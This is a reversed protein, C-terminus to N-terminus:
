STEQSFLPTSFERTFAQNIYTAIAKTYNEREELNMKALRQPNELSNDGSFDVPKGLRGQILARVLANISAKEDETLQYTTPECTM